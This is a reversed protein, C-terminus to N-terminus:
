YIQSFFSKNLVDDDTQQLPLLKQSLQVHFDCCPHHHGRHVDGHCLQGHGHGHGHDHGHGHCLQGHHPQDHCHRRGLSRLSASTPLKEARKKKDCRHDFHHDEVDFAPLLIM